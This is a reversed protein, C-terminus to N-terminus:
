RDLVERVKALLDKVPIPKPLFDVSDSRIGKTLVVDGTYGSMFIAKVAPNMRVLRDFVEKGNQGPMVVDLIVLDIRGRNAGYMAVASNGDAAELVSYGRSDLITTLLRRVGVDDEVILITESGRGPEERIDVKRPPSTEILPLYIDFTTGKLPVSSVTIHGNHQRAIGFASALGLGTGKGVEKTTFFPEYIHELTSADMGVGTDTVSLKAYDGPGGFAHRRTFEEDLKTRRTTVTLSGGHLMADRANTALNMLIQSIQTIDISVALDEDALDLVLDIDEPLLRRLLKAAGGVVENLYRLTLEIRQKRSFALLSQTLDAARRSSEVIQDIATKMEDGKDMDLQIVQAYGLIVTLLNNFDHAVGGALTGVAEMKQAQYLRAEIDRLETIDQVALTVGIPQGSKDKIPDFNELWVAKGKPQAPHDGTYETGKIAEGTTVVQRLSREV